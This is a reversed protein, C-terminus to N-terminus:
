YNVQVVVISSMKIRFDEAVSSSLQYPHQGFMKWKYIVYM